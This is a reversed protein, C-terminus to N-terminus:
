DEYHTKLGNEEARHNIMFEEIASKKWLNMNGSEDRETEACNVNPYKNKLALSNKQSVFIITFSISLM